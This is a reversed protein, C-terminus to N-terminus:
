DSHVSGAKWLPRAVAFIIGPLGPGTGVDIVSLAQGRLSVGEPKTGAESAVSAAAAAAAAAAKGAATKSGRDASPMNGRSVPEQRAYRSTSYFQNSASAVASPSLQAISLNSGSEIIPILSM